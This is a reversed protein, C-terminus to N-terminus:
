NICFCLNESLSLSENMNLEKMVSYLENFDRPYIKLDYISRRDGANSKLDKLLGLATQNFKVRKEFEDEKIKFYDEGDYSKLWEDWNKISSKWEPALILHYTEIFKGEQLSDDSYKIFSNDNVLYSNLFLYHVCQTTGYKTRPLKKLEILIIKNEASNDILVLDAFMAYDKKKLERPDISYLTLEKFIQKGQGILVNFIHALEEKNM